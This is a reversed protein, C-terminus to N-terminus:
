SKENNNKIFRHYYLLVLLGNIIAIAILIHLLRYAYQHQTDIIKMQLMYTYLAVKKLAELNESSEIQEIVDEVDYKSIFKQDINSVLHYVYVAGTLPTIILLFSVLLYATKKDMACEVM